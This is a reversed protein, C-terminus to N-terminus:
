DDKGDKDKELLIPKSFSADMIYAPPEQGHQDFYDKLNKRREISIDFCTQSLIHLDKDSLFKLFNKLM